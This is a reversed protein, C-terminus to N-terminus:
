ELNLITELYELDLSALFRKKKMSKKLATDRKLFNYAFKLLISLNKYNPVKVDPPFAFYYRKYIL